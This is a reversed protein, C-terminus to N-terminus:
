CQCKENKVDNRGLVQLATFSSDPLFSQTVEATVDCMSVASGGSRDKMELRVGVMNCSAAQGRVGSNGGIELQACGRGWVEKDPASNGAPAAPPVSGPFLLPQSPFCTTEARCNTGSVTVMVVM